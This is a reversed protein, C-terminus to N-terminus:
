KKSVVIENNVPTDGAAHKAHEMAKERDMEKQVDGSLCIEEKRFPWAGKKRTFVYIHRAGEITPDDNIERKIEDAIEKLTM